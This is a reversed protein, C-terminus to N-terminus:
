GSNPITEASLRLAEIPLPALFTPAKHPPIIVFPSSQLNCIAFQLNCISEAPEDITLKCNEIQLKCYHAVAWAAGITDAIAVRVALGRRALDRVIAECLATEGGFLHALGTIDLLISERDTPELGVIPSFQRCCAM